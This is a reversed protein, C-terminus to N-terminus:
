LPASTGCSLPTGSILESRDSTRREGGSPGEKGRGANRGLADFKKSGGELGRKVIRLKELFGLPRFAVHGPGIGFDHVPDVLFNEARRVLDDGEILLAGLFGLLRGAFHDGMGPQDGLDFPATAPNGDVM